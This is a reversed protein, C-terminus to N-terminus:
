DLCKSDYAVHTFQNENLELMQYDGQICIKRIDAKM